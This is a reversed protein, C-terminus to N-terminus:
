PRGADIYAKISDYSPPEPRLDECAIERIGEDLSNRVIDAWPEDAAFPEGPVGDEFADSSNVVHSQRARCRIGFQDVTHSYDGAPKDRPVRAVSVTLEDGTKVVSDVDILYARTDGRSFIWWEPGAPVEPATAPAEAPADQAEAAGALTFIALGIATASQKLTM